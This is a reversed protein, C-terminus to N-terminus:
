RLQDFNGFMPSGVFFALTVVAALLIGVIIFRRKEVSRPPLRGCLFVDPAPEGRRGEGRRPVLAQVRPPGLTEIEQFVNKFPGAASGM